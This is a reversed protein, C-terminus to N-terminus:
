AFVKNCLIPEILSDRIIAKSCKAQLPTERQGEGSPHTQQGPYRIPKRLEDHM